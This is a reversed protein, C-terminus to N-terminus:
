ALTRRLRKLSECIRDISHVVIVAILSVFKSNCEYKLVFICKVKIAFYYFFVLGKRLGQFCCLQRRILHAVILTAAFAYIASETVIFKWISVSLSLFLPRPDTILLEVACIVSRGVVCLSFSRERLLPENAFRKLPVLRSSRFFFLYLFAFWRLPPFFTLTYICGSPFIDSIAKLDNKDRNKARRYPAGNLKVLVPTLLLNYLVSPRNTGVRANPHNFLKTAKLGSRISRRRIYAQSYINTQEHIAERSM